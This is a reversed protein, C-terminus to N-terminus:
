SLHLKREDLLSSDYCKRPMFENLKLNIQEIQYYIM